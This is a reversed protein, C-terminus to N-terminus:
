KFIDLIATHFDDFNEIKRKEIVRDYLTGTIM